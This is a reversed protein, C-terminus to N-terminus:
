SDAARRWTRRGQFIPVSPLLLVAPEVRRGGKLLQDKTVAFGSYGQDHDNIGAEVYDNLTYWGDNNWDISGDTRAIKFDKGTDKITYATHRWLKSVGAPPAIGVSEYLHAENLQPLLWRSFDMPRDPVTEAFQFAYNMISLFNPKYNTNAETDSQWADWSARSWPGGHGLGLLHGLEHMFTAAQYGVWGSIVNSGTVSASAPGLTVMFDNGFPESIGGSETDETTGDSKTRKYYNGFICYRYVLRRAGLAIWAPDDNGSVPDSIGRMQVTGFHGDKPRTGTPNVPNGLKLDDFDDQDGLGAQSGRKWVIKPILPVPEDVDIHVAVGRGGDIPAAAFAQYVLIEFGPEPRYTKTSNQMYDM